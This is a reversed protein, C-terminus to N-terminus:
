YLEKPEENNGIVEVKPLVEKVFRDRVQKAREADGDRAPVAVGVVLCAGPWAPYVAYGIAQEGQEVLTAAKAYLSEIDAIRPADDAMYGRWPVATPPDRHLDIDYAEILPMAWKEFSQACAAPATNDAVHTIYGGVVAHHGRGYRFGMLTPVGWFTVRMWHQADPLLIRVSGQKDMRPGLPALKLEELAAAHEVGGSGGESPRGDDKPPSAAAAILSAPATSSSCAALLLLLLLPPLLLPSRRM